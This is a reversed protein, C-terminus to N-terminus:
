KMLVLKKTARCEGAEIRCFYVGTGILGTNINKRFNGKELTRSYIPVAVM